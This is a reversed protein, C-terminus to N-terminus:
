PDLSSLAAVPEVVPEDPAWLADVDVPVLPLVVAGAFVAGFAVVAVM